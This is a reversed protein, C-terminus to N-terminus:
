ILEKLLEIEDTLGVDTTKLKEIEDVDIIENWTLTLMESVGEYTYFHKISLYNGIPFEHSHWRDKYGRLGNKKLIDELMDIVAKIFDRRKM